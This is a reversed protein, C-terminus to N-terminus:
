AQTHPFQESDPALRSCICHSHTLTHTHLPAPCVGSRSHAPDWASLELALLCRAGKTSAGPSHRSPPSVETGGLLSQVLHRPFQLCTGSDPHSHLFPPQQLLSFQHPLLLAMAFTAKTIRLRLQTLPLRPLPSSLILVVKNGNHLALERTLPPVAPHPRPFPAPLPHIAMKYTRPLDSLLFQPCQTQHSWKLDCM